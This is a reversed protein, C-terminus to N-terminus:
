EHDAEASTAQEAAAMEELEIVRAEHDAIKQAIVTAQTPDSTLKAAAKLFGIASTLDDIAGRGAAVEARYTLILRDITNLREDVISQLAKTSVYAQANKLTTQIAEFDPIGPVDLLADAKEIYFGFVLPYVESSRYVAKPPQPATIGPLAIVMEKGKPAFRGKWIELTGQNEILVYRSSNSVSAWVVLLILFALGAAVLKLSTDVPDSPKDVATQVPPPDYTVQVGPKEAAAREVAAREVAAKEAAAKEVAAKEAAAKEAAAKEAAAREAAAKETAAREAAAREVAAKEAAAKLQAETYTNSLLQKIRDVATADMGAYPDSSALAPKEIVEAPSTYRTKPIGATYQRKLIDRM